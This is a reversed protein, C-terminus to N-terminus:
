YCINSCALGGQVMGMRALYICQSHSVSTKCRSSCQPWLLCRIMILHYTEYIYLSHLQPKAVLFLLIELKYGKPFLEWIV